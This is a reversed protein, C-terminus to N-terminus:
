QLLGRIIIFANPGEDVWPDDFPRLGAKERLKIIRRDIEALALFRLDPSGSRLWAAARVQEILADADEIGIGAVWRLMAALSDGGPGALVGDMWQQRAARYSKSLAEREEHVEAMRSSREDRRADRRQVVRPIAEEAYAEFGNM